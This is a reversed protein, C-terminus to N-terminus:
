DERAGGELFLRLAVTVTTTGKDQKANRARARRGINNCRRSGDADSVNVISTGVASSLIKWISSWSCILVSLATSRIPAVSDSKLMIMIKMVKAKKLRSRLMGFVKM